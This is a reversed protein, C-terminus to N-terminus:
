EIFVDEFEKKRFHTWCFEDNIIFLIAVEDVKPRCFLENGFIYGIAYKRLINKKDIIDRYRCAVGLERWVAIGSRWRSWDFSDSPYKPILAKMEVYELVM